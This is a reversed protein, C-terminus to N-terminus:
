SGSCGVARAERNARLGKLFSRVPTRLKRQAAGSCSASEPASCSAAVGSCSASSGADANGIFAGAALLVFACIAFKM